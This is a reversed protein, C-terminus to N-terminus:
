GQRLWRLCSEYNRRGDGGGIAWPEFDVKEGLRAIGRAATDRDEAMCALATLMGLFRPDGYRASMSELGEKIWPWRAPMNRFLNGSESNAVSWYLLAYLEHGRRERTQADVTDIFSAIKPLSGGWRPLMSFVLENLLLAEDTQRKRIGDEAVAQLREIPWGASRGILLLYLSASADSMVQPPSDVIVALAADILRAFERQAPPPVTDWTGSGRV